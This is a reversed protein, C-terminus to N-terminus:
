GSQSGTVFVYFRFRETAAPATGDSDRPAIVIVNDTETGPPACAVFTAGCPATGTEGTIGPVTPTDGTNQVAIQAHIGNNRVDEGADIYCNDNAQYCNVTTFGGTQQEIVGAESVLAWRTSLDAASAGDVRDANLGTAVGTANTTFPKKTDGGGGATFTGVVDGVSANLEFARGSSLNNARLCPDSNAANTSRCGYIAGGGSSSLNSQRTSFGGKAGSAANIRSVIETERTSTGNRQGERLVDGTAAVGFPALSLVLMGTALLVSRTRPSRRRGRRKTPEAAPTADRQPYAAEWAETWAQEDRFEM